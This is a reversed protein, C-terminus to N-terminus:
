CPHGEAEGLLTYAAQYDARENDMVLGTHGCTIASWDFGILTFGHIPYFGESGTLTQWGRAQMTAIATNAVCVHCLLDLVSPTLTAGDAVRHEQLEGLDSFTFAALAGPLKM